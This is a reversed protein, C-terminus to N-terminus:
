VRSAGMPGLSFNPIASPPWQAAEPDRAARLESYGYLGYVLSLPWHLRRMADMVDVLSWGSELFCQVLAAGFRLAYVNPVKTETGIFGCFGRQSTAELFGKREEVVATSCGNLFTLAIANPADNAYDLDGQFDYTSILDSENLALMRGNAHCYFFLIRNSDGASRWADLLDRRDHLAKGYAGFLNNLATLEDPPIQKSAVSFEKEHFVPFLRFTRRGARPTIRHYMCALLYKLCWFGDYGTVYVGEANAPLQSPDGEFILGWPVHIFGDVTVDIRCPEGIDSLWKQVALPITNYEDISRFLARYLGRGEFALDRLIGEVSANTM